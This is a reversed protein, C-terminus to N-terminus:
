DGEVLDLRYLGALVVILAMELLKSVMAVTDDVLHIWVTEVVGADGHGHAHIHPWFGGHDLVTHWAVYGVLHVVLLAIGLLYVQRVWVGHYVLLVGFVMLFASLTFALPRPDFLTGIQLHMMLRPAGLRPHLLHIAAVAAALIAGLYRLEQVGLGAVGADRDTM